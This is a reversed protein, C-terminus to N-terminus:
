KLGPLGPFLVDFLLQYQITVRCTQVPAMQVQAIIIAVPQSGKLQNFPKTTTLATKRKRLDIEKKREM